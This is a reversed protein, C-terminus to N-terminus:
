RRRDHQLHAQFGAPREDVDGTQAVDGTQGSGARLQSEAETVRSWLRRYARRRLRETNEAVWACLIALPLEILFGSAVAKLRDTDSAASTIDFWADTVLLVATVTALPETWTSRKVAAWATGGLALFMVIDFGVWTVDYHASRSQEPLEYALYVIWPALGIACVAALVGFWKPLPLAGPTLPDVSLPSTPLHTEDQAAEGDGDVFEPVPDSRTM